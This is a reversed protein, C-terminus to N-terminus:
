QRLLAEVTQGEECDNLIPCFRCWPGARREVRGELAWAERLSSVMAAVEGATRSIDFETPSAHHREGTRVSVAEVASPIEGKELAWLLSYFDLQDAVDGLDGSKWDVLRHGSIEERYVADVTGFIEVGDETQHSLAVEAAEFGDMPFRVFREYLERVEEIMGNLTSPKIELGGMKFNLNSDGIEQKCTQAFVEASIPGESLHRSFVRHALQGLFAPRTDPGYHGQLRANASDPCKKWAM